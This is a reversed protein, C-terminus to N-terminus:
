SPRYNGRPCFINFKLRFTTAMSFAMIHCLGAGVCHCIGCYSFAGISRHVTSRHLLRCCNGEANAEQSHLPRLRIGERYFFVEKQAQWDSYDWQSFFLIFCSSGGELSVGVRALVGGSCLLWLWLLKKLCSPRRPMCSATGLARSAIWGGKPAQRESHARLSFALTSCPSLRGTVSPGKCASWFFM